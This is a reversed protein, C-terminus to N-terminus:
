YPGRQGCMAYIARCAEHPGNLGCVSGGRTDVSLAYYFGWYEDFVVPPDPALRNCVSLRSNRSRYPGQPDWVGAGNLWGYRSSPNWVSRPDNAECNLCGLFVRHPLGGAIFSANGYVMLKVDDANTKHAVASPGSATLCLAVLLSQLVRRSM